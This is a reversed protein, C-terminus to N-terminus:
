CHFNCEDYEITSIGPRLYKSSDSPVSVKEEEWKNKKYDWHRKDYTQFLFYLGFFEIYFMFGAHDKKRDRKLMFDFYSWNEFIGSQMELIKNKSLKKSPNFFLRETM